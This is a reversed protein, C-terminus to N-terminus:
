QGIVKKLKDTANDIATVISQNQVVIQNICDQIAQDVGQWEPKIIKASWLVQQAFLDTQGFGTSLSKSENTIDLQNTTPKLSAKAYEDVVTTDLSKLFEWAIAPNNSTKSVTATYYAAYDIRDGGLDLDKVQPLSLVKISELKKNVQRIQNYMSSYGIIAAVKGQAFATVPDGMSSNWSYNASDAKAFSSYLALAQQAPFVTSGNATGALNLAVNKGDESYLNGGYQALMALYIDTAAYTNDVTGLAIGSRSFSSGSRKNVLKVWETLEAWTKPDSSILEIAAYNEQESFEDQVARVIETNIYLALSDIAVPFGYLKGDIINQSALNDGFIDKLADEETTNKDDSWTVYDSAPALKTQHKLLWDNRVLWIDPGNGSAIANVVKAEYDKADNAEIYKYELKVDTNEMLYTQALKDWAKSEDYPSWVKITTSTPTDSGSRAIIIAVITVIVLLVIGAIIIVGRKM